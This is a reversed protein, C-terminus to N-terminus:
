TGVPEPFHYLTRDLYCFDYEVRGRQVCRTGAKHLGGVRSASLVVDAYDQGLGVLSADTFLRIGARQARDARMDPPARLTPSAAVIRPHKKSNASETAQLAVPDAVTAEFIGATCGVSVATGAGALTKAGDEVTVVIGVSEGAGVAEGSGADAVGWAVAGVVNVGEGVGMGDAVM